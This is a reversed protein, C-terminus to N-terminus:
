EEITIKHENFNKKKDKLCLLIGILLVCVGFKRFVLIIQVKSKIQFILSKIIDFIFNNIIEILLYDINILVCQLFLSFRASELQAKDFVDM